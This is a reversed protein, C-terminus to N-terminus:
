PKASELSAIRGEHDRLIKGHEDITKPTTLSERDYIELKQLFAGLTAATKEHGERIQLSLQEGMAAMDARMRVQEAALRDFKKDLGAVDTKLGAVDTKLQSVDSKLTEIDSKMPKLDGKTAPQSDDAAMCSNYCDLM